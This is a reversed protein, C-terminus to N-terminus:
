ILISSFTPLGRTPRRKPFSSKEEDSGQLGVLPRGVNEVFGGFIFYCNGPIKFITLGIKFVDSHL